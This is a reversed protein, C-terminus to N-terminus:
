EDELYGISTPRIHVQKTWGEPIDGTSWEWTRTAGPEMPVKKEEVVPTPFRSAVVPWADKQMRTGQDNLYWISLWLTKLTQEGNNTVDVEFMWGDLPGDPNEALNVQKMRVESLALQDKYEAVERYRRARKREDTPANTYETLWRDYAEITDQEEAWRWLVPRREDGADKAFLGKPYATLYADYAEVTKVARAREILLQQLRTDAEIARNGTPNTALYAQYAEITDAEKAEAFGDSCGSLAVLGLWGVFLARRVM